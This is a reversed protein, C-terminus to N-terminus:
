QGDCGLVGALLRGAARVSDGSPKGGDVGRCLYRAIRSRDRPGNNHELYLMEAYRANGNQLWIHNRSIPSVLTGWWQRSVQNAILRTGVQDGIGKPSLFILGPASYGNPTGNETEIVTLNAKPPPGYLSTFYIMAKGVEEGYPNAMSKKTRFYLTTAVGQASVEVPDGQVVAISGPFSPHTYKFTFKAKDGAARDSSEDGSAIVKYGTPVTVHLEATYRDVTYDYVPFWRSPYLLYAFDNQISAFKIGYIPSDETGALRGDYSFTLTSPKGKQLPTPFSLQITFDETSRSAPIQRGTEDVVRSVNLANNLQFSATTINDDIPTVRVQVIASVVQTRPNIEADIVYQDVHLRSKAGREQQAALVGALALAILGVRGFM